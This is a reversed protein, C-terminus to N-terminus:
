VEADMIKGNLSHESPSRLIISTLDGRNIYTVKNETQNGEADTETETREITLETNWASGNDLVYYKLGEEDNEVTQPYCYAFGDWQTTIKLSSDYRVLQSNSSSSLEGNANGTKEVSMPIEIPSQKFGSSCVGETWDTGQNAYDFGQSLTYLLTSSTLAKM